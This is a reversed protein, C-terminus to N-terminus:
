AKLGSPSGHVERTVKLSGRPARRKWLLQLVESYFAPFSCLHVSPLFSCRDSRSM